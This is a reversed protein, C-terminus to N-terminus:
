RSCGIRQPDVALEDINVNMNAGIKDYQQYMVLGVTLTDFPDPMPWPPNSDNTGGTHTKTVHLGTHEVGDWYLRMEQDPGNWEMEFCVWKKAPFATQGAPAGSDDIGVEARDMGDENMLLATNIFGGARLEPRKTGASFLHPGTAQAFTWHTLPFNATDNYKFPLPVTDMYLFLRVWFQNGAIPFIKKLSMMAKNQGTAITFRASKSGRAARTADIKVSGKTPDWFEPSWSSPNPAAQDAQGEFDDCFLVGATGCRPSGFYDGADTSFVRGADAPATGADQTTTGADQTGNSGADTVLQSGADGTKGGDTNMEEVSGSCAAMLVVLLARRM